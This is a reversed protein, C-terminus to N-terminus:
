VEVDWRRLTVWERNGHWPHDGGSNLNLKSKISVYQPLDLVKFKEACKLVGFTYIRKTSKLNYRNWIGDMKKSSGTNLNENWVACYAFHTETVFFINLATYPFLRRKNQSGYFCSFVNPPCFTCNNLMLDPPVYLSWQAIFMTVVTRYMYHGSHSVYLSWQATCITVVTRYMYHGSHSLCLSWRATCITVV